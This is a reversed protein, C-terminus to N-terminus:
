LTNGVKPRDQQEGQVTASNGYIIALVIAICGFVYFSKRITM